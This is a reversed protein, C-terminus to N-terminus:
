ISKRKEFSLRAFTSILCSHGNNHVTDHIVLRLVMPFQALELNVAVEGIKEAVAGLKHLGIVDKAGAAAALLLLFFLSLLVTTM